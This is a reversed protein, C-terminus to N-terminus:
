EKIIWNDIQSENGLLRSGNIIAIFLTNLCTHTHTHMGNVHVIPSTQDPGIQDM